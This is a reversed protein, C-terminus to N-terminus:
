RSAQNLDMAMRIKIQVTNYENRAAIYEHYLAEDVDILVEDKYDGGDYRRLAFNVKLDTAAGVILLM